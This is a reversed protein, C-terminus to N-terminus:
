NLTDTGTYWGGAGNQAYNLPQNITSGGDVKKYFKEKARSVLANSGFINDVVKPLIKRTTIANVNDWTLAM